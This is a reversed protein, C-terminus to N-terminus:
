TGGPTRMGWISFSQEIHICGISKRLATCNSNKHKNSVRM